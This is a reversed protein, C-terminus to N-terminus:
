SSTTTVAPESMEDRDVVEDAEIVDDPEAVAAITVAEHLRRVERESRELRTELRRIAAMHDSSARETLTAVIRALMSLLLLAAVTIVALGWMAAALDRDGETFLRWGVGGLLGTVAGALAVVTLAAQRMRKPSLHSKSHM